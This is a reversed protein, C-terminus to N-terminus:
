MGLLLFAGTGAFSVAGLTKLISFPTGSGLLAAFGFSSQKYGKRCISTPSLKITFLTCLRVSALLMDDLM